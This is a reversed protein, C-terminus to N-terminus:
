PTSGSDNQSTGSLRNVASKLSAESDILFQGSLVITQGESLGSLIATKGEAEPGLTVPAVDFSSDPRRVIVVSRRGTAIVAESPVWLQPAAAPGAVTTQVFMGPSLTGAPNDIAIRVGVTRTTPDVQPLIAQVRGPLVTGPLAVARVDVKAGPAVARAQAEPVQADVWVTATGNLRFLVAGADFTAGERLGLETVVGDIPAVIPTTTAVSRSKELELIAPEPVGIVLLRQRAAERLSAAAPSESRLLALYEGEAETWAPATIDALIQGRRVRDLAARVRLRTVFGAVRTQVLAVDHEDYRVTGVAMTHPAIAAKEVTGLRIGLNQQANASVAVGGSDAGQDMYVPVLQMDMFPSKGPKDFKVEPKMPDHWYLIKRESSAQAQATPSIQSSDGGRPARTALGYGLGASLVAVGVVAVIWKVSSM